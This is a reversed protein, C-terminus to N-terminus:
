KKEIKYQSSAKKRSLLDNSILLIFNGYTTEWCISSFGALGHWIFSKYTHVKHKEDVCVNSTLGIMEKSEIQLVNWKSYKLKKSVSDWSYSCDSNSM